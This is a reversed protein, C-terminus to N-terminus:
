SGLSTKDSERNEELLVRSTAFDVEVVKGTIVKEEGLLAELELRGSRLRMYAIDQLLPENGWKNLYAKALCV